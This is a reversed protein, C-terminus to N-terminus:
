NDRTCPIVPRFGTSSQLEAIAKERAEEETEASIYTTFDGRDTEMRVRWLKKTAVTKQEAM